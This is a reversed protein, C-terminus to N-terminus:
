VPDNDSAGGMGNEMLWGRLAELPIVVRKGFRIAPFGKQHALAYAKNRGVGLMKALEPVSITLKQM